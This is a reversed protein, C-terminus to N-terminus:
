FLVFKVVLHLYKRKIEVRELDSFSTEKMDLELSKQILLSLICHSFLDMTEESLVVASLVAKLNSYLHM